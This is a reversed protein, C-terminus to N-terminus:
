RGKCVCGISVINSEECNQLFEGVLECGDVRPADELFIGQFLLTRTLRILRTFRVPQVLLAVRFLQIPLCPVPFFLLPSSCRDPAKKM